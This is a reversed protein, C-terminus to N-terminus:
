LIADIEKNVRKERKERQEVQGEDYEIVGMTVQVGFYGGISAAISVIFIFVALAGSVDIIRRAIVLVSLLVFIFLVAMPLWDAVWDVEVMPALYVETMGYALLGIAFPVFLALAAAFIGRQSSFMSMLFRTVAIWFVACVGLTLNFGPTGIDYAFLQELLRSVPDIVPTQM